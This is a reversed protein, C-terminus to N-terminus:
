IDRLDFLLFDADSLADFVLKFEGEIRAGDGAHLQTGAVEISGRTLQVWFQRPANVDHIVQAGADLQCRYIVADQCISLSGDHGDGSVVPQLRNHLQEDGFHAQDYRPEIGREGPFLWIQLSHSAQEASANFESHQVGRGASMVQVDGPRMTSGNGLSDEHAMEGDLVVTVIEMDRHGHTPFGAGAAVHDDNIVRLDSVGMHAPDHYDGFSFSYRGQLWGADIRGREDSPRVQIM